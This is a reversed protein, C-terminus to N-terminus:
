SQLSKATVEVDWCTSLQSTWDSRTQPTKVPVVDSYMTFEYPSLRWIDPRQPRHGYVQAPDLERMQQQGATNKKTWVYRPGASEETEDCAVNVAQLYCRGPFSIFAATSIREAAVISSPKNYARLNCCEVQGRVIGKCYADSLFRTVHRKGLKEISGKECQKQLNQHGKQFERIEHYAMPQNKACYDACYGTQADQARQM